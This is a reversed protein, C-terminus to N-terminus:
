ISAGHNVFTVHLLHHVLVLLVLKGLIHGKHLTVCLTLVVFRIPCTDKVRAINM